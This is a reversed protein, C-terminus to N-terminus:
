FRSQLESTHEESRVGQPVQAGAALAPRQPESEGREGGLLQQVQHVQAIELVREAAVLRQLDQATAGLALLLADGRQALLAHGAVRRSGAPEAVAVLLEDPQQVLRALVAE